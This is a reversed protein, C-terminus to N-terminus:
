KTASLLRFLISWTNLWNRFISSSVNHGVLVTVHTVPGGTVWTVSGSKSWIQLKVWHRVLVRGLQHGYEGEQVMWWLYDDVCGDMPCNVFGNPVPFPHPPIMVFQVCVANIPSPANYDVPFAHPNTKSPLQPLHPLIMHTVPEGTVWTVRGFEGLHRWFCIGMSNRDMPTNGPTCGALFHPSSTYNPGPQNKVEISLWSDDATLRAEWASWLVSSTKDPQQSTLVLSFNPGKSM